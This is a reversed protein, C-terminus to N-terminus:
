KEDEQTVWKLAAHIPALLMLMNIHAPNHSESLLDLVAELATTANSATGEVTEDILPNRAHKM